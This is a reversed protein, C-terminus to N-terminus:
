VWSRARLGRFGEFDRANSTILTLDNVYAVAAIRGDVFPPTRGDAGLRAREAAERDYDLM